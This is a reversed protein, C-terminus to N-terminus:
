QDDEDEMLAHVMRRGLVDVTLLAPQGELVPIELSDPLAPAAKSRAASAYAYFANGRLYGASIQEVAEVGSLEVGDLGKELAYQRLHIKGLGLGREMEAALAPSGPSCPGEVRLASGLLRKRTVAIAEAASDVALFRRGHTMAAVATTGSGAFLDCVLDGPRSTSLVVRELLKLPKQNDYGTRQPDKQQLHSVDDWVDGPCVLDDDYYRYEKGLSVISSYARGEADVGRRMHNKRVHGRPMGVAEINFYASPTKRYFLIIDHKRSFHAASRGGTQYAWIIENVFNHAGFIEDMILRLRAHTRADIHLFISGDDSLLDHALAIAGHLMSLFAEDDPWRDTYAPLTLVPKGTRWGKEGCRQRLVYDKGTHFPPDL